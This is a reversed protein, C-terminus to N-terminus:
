NQWRWIYVQQLTYLSKGNSGWNYNSNYINSNNPYWIFM